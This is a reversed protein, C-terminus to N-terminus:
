LSKWNNEERATENKSLIKQKSMKKMTFLTM